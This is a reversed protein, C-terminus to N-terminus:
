NKFVKLNAALKPKGNAGTKGQNPILQSTREPVRSKLSSKGRM